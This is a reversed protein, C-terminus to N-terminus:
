DQVLKIVPTPYAQTKLFGEESNEIMHLISFWQQLICLISNLSGYNTLHQPLQYKSHM